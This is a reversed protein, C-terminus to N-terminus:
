HSPVKPGRATDHACLKRGLDQLAAGVAADDGRGTAVPCTRSTGRGVIVRHHACATARAFTVDDDGYVDVDIHWTPSATMGRTM